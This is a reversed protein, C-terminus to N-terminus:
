SHKKVHKPDETNTKKERDKEDDSIEEALDDDFEDAHDAEKVYEENINTGRMSKFASKEAEAIEIM